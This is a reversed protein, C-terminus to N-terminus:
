TNHCIYFCIEQDIYIIKVLFIAHCHDMNTYLEVGSIMCSVEGILVSRETRVGLPMQILSTGSYMYALILRLCASHIHPQKGSHWFEMFVLTIENLINFSTTISTGFLISVLFCRHLLAPSSIYCAGFLM